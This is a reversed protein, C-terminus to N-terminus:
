STWPIGHAHYITRQQQELNSMFQAVEPFLPQQTVRPRHRHQPPPQTSYSAPSRRSPSGYAATNHRAIVADLRTRPITDVPPPALSVHGDAADLHQQRQHAERHAAASVGHKLALRRHVASTFSANWENTPVLGNGGYISENRGALRAEEDAVRVLEVEIRRLLLELRRDAEALQATTLVPFETPHPLPCAREIDETRLLIADDNGDMGAGTGQKQSSLLMASQWSGYQMVAADRSPVTITQASHDTKSVRRSLWPPPDYLGDSMVAAVRSRLEQASPCGLAGRIRVVETHHMARDAEGAVTTENGAVAQSRSSATTAQSPMAATPHHYM